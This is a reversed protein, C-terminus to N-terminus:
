RRIYLYGGAWDANQLLYERNNIIRLDYRVHKAPSRWSAPKYVEGTQKDVFAHVGGSKQIIKYYKKGVTISFQGERDGDRGYSDQLRSVLQTTWKYVNSAILKKADLQLETQVLTTM